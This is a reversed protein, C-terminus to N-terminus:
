GAPLRQRDGDRLVVGVHRDRGRRQKVSYMDADAPVLAADISEGAPLTAVGVSASVVVSTTTSVTIPLADLEARLRSAVIRDGGDVAAIFEDGGLRAVLADDGVARTLVGAIERLVDDGVAHGFRDNVEKFDDVDVTLLVLDRSRGFAVVRDFFGRRNLVGTLHDRLAQWELQAHLREREAAEAILRRRSRDVEDLLGSIVTISAAFYWHMPPAVLLPAAVPAILAVRSGISGDFVPVGFVAYSLYCLVASGLVSSATGVVVMRWTGARQASRALVRLVRRSRHREM